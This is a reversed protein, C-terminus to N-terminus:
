LIIYIQIILPPKINNIQIERVDILFIYTYINQECKM